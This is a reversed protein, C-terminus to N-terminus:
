DHHCNRYLLAKFPVNNKLDFERGECFHGRQLLFQPMNCFFFFTLVIYYYFFVICTLTFLIFLTKPFYFYLLSTLHCSDSPLQKTIWIDSKLGMPELSLIGLEVLQAM